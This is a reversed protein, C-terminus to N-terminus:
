RAVLLQVVAGPDIRTGAAPTQATVAGPPVPPRMPGNGAVHAVPVDVLKSTAKIGAQGLQAVASVALEGVLDPMVYGDATETEPVAVLLNVTPQGINQAHAPPDQAIVSGPTAKAYPLHATVGVNLGARRLELEAMREDHGVVAPVDVQQPGLSESVRVQWERRVVTGSAPSQTLIHGAAVDSSYFRNDVSLNLGLGATQSLAEAVTMGKLAPVQVEAGHIAFHMTIIAGLMGLAVLVMLLSGVQFFSKISRSDM